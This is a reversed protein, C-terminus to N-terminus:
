SRLASAGCSSSVRYHSASALPATLQWIWEEIGPRENGSGTITSQFHAHLNATYQGLAADFIAVSERYTRIASNEMRRPFRRLRFYDPIIGIRAGSIRVQNGSQANSSSPLGAVNPPV